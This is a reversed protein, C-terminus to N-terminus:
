KVMMFRFCNEGVRRFEQVMDLGSGFVGFAGSEDDCKGNRRVFEGLTLLHHCVYQTDNYFVM